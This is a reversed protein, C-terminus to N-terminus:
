SFNRAEALDGLTDVDLWHGTFYKVRVPCRAALRTLLLPLDATELLGEAELAAIEEKLWEAGRASFRALGIWEGCAQDPPVDHGMFRLHAPSDDLYQGSFRRDAVVLDRPNPSSARQPASGNSDVALVADAGSNLLGDLIYRRFLVDGYALVTEGRIAERACALSWAEGTEAYRDNDIMAAGSVAVADKRYGRVVAIDRVGAERLTGALRRLLPQGRVDVMCKPRDRTLAGLNGASAALVVAGAAPKAPLYRREAEELEANGILRFIDKVSAVRDEVRVLSEDERIRAATERM